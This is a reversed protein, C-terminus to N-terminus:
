DLYRQQKGDFCNEVAKDSRPDVKRSERDELIGGLFRLAPGTVVFADRPLLTRM